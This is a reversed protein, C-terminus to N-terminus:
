GTGATETSKEKKPLKAVIEQLKNVNTHCVICGTDSAVGSSLSIFAFAVVLGAPVVLRWISKM